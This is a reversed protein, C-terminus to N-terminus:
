VTKKLTSMIKKNQTIFVYISTILEIFFSGIIGLNYANFMFFFAYHRSPMKFRLLGTLRLFVYELIHVLIFGILLIQNSYPLAFLLVLVGISMDGIHDLDEGFKSSQNTLRAFYGDFNDLLLHILFFIVFLSQNFMLQTASFVGCCISVVTIHNPKLGISSLKLFAKKLGFLEFIKSKSSYLTDFSITKM